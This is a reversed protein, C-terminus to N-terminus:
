WINNLLTIKECFETLGHYVELNGSLFDFIAIAFHLIVLQMMQKSLGPLRGKAVITSEPKGPM